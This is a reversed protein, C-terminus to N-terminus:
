NVNVKMLQRRKQAESMRRRTEDSIVRVSNWTNKGKNSKSIKDKSEQSMKRGKMPSPRGKLSESKKRKTEESQKSGKRGKLISPKGKKALSMKRKSEETHHRECMVGKVKPCANFWPKYSDIFFQEIEFLQERDCRLLLCFSLDSEGYKNFHAQLKPNKHRKYRLDTLHQRWRHFIDISNGVYIKNPEINSIIKYIGSIKEM